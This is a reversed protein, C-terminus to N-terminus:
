MKLIYSLHTNCLYRFCDLAHTLSKDSKDISGDPLVRVNEIDTKLKKCKTKHLLVNFRHLVANVLVRNDELRPNATPVKIQPWGLELEGKIIQYATLNDRTTASRNNGSADGTVKYMKNGYNAKIYGCLKYIDSNELAIQELGYLWGDYIQAVLCTTPDVNFDFSLLLEQNPNYVPEGMHKSESYSYCFLNDTEDFNTWDGGIFQKQYREDMSGWANWQDQTVFANDDPLAHQFFFDAPLEGNVWKLYIEKKPWKQTPNFTTFMFAPPMPDLYWSGCRSGGIQWSKENIEELQEWFIGNTELGLFDNLEPDQKFNEGKFFIKSDKKNYAFYNAKDRNWKWNSSGKIIKEFSPITTGQLAPFDQRITHWKSGEYRNSLYILIGLTIFTKGGRIAGGYAFKRYNNLGNCSKVVETFYNFQKPNRELDISPIGIM